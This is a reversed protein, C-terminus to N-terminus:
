AKGQGPRPPYRQVLYHYARGPLRDPRWRVGPGATVWSGHEDGMFLSGSAAHWGGDRQYEQAVSLRRYPVAAMACSFAIPEANEPLTTSVVPAAAPMPLAVAWAKAASPARSISASISVPLPAAVTAAMRSCPPSATKQWHLTASAAWTWDM